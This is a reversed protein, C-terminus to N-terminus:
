CRNRTLEGFHINEFVFHM